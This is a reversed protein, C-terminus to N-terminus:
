DVKLGHPMSEYFGNQTIRVWNQPDKGFEHMEKMGRCGCYSFGSKIGCVLNFIIDIVTGKYPVFTAVGEAAMKRKEKNLHNIQADYSAMGEYLKVKKESSHGITLVNGPTEKSGALLSGLMVFDAGAAYCKMIDGSFRIGGDAIVKIKTGNLENYDCIASSVEQIASLQPFGCGTVIRTSCVSGPGVGVKCAAVGMECLRLASERTCINGVILKYKPYNNKIHNVAIKVLNHDGHAVDVIVFGINCDDVIEYDSIGSFIEDIVGTKVGVSIGFLKISEKIKGIEEIIRDVSMFRHLAATAGISCMANIMSRFLM